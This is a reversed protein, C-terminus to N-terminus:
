SGPQGVHLHPRLYLAVILLLPIFGAPRSSLVAGFPAAILLTYPLRSCRCVSQQQTFALASSGGIAKGGILQLPSLSAFMVEAM